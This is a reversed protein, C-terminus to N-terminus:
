EIELKLSVSHTVYAHSKTILILVYEHGVSFTPTPIKTRMKM